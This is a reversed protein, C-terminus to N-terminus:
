SFLLGGAGISIDDSHPAFALINKHKIGNVVKVDSLFKKSPTGYLYPM